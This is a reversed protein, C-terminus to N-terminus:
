ERWLKLNDWKERLRTRSCFCNWVREFVLAIGLALLFTAVTLIMMSIMESKICHDFVRALVSLVISHFLYIYYTKSSLWSYDGKVDILSFLSFMSLSYVIITPSFFNVNWKSIYFYLGRARALFTIIISAMIILLLWIIAKKKNAFAKESETRIVDGMLFYGLFAGVVGISYASEQSSTMQSICAWILMIIALLKYKNWSVQNRIKIILPVTAYLGILMYVYWLHYAGSTMIGNLGYLIGRHLRYNIIITIASEIGLIVFFPIFIKFSTRKYFDIANGNKKNNLLFAGSLMVFCPVSFRTIINLLSEIIWIANMTPVQYRKEFFRWNVHICIVAITSIIRLLDYNGQRDVSTTKKKKDLDLM